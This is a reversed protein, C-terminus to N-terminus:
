FDENIKKYLGIYKELNNSLSLNNIAFLNIAKKQEFSTKELDLTLLERESNVVNGFLKNNAILDTYAGASNIAIIRLGKGFYESVKTPTAVNNFVQGDRYIIGYDFDDALLNIESQTLDSILKINTGSLSINIKKSTIVTLELEPRKEIVKIIEQTKQYLQNGGVFLIKVLENTNASHNHDPLSFISDDYASNCFIVNNENIKYTSRYINFLEKSVFSFYIDSNFLRNNLERFLRERNPENFFIKEGEVYGRVDYIVKINKQSIDKVLLGVYAAEINRCHIILSDCKIKRELRVAIKKHDIISGLFIFSVSKQVWLSLFKIPAIRSKFKQGIVLTMNINSNDLRKKLGLVQSEFVTSSIGELTLYYLNM